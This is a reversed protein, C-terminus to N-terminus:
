WCKRWYTASKEYGLAHYFDESRRTALALLQCESQQAWLEVAQILARGIGQRRLSNVVAIEELWAVRGNAYFTLHHLALAYGVIDSQPTAAIVLMMSPTALIDRYSIEFASREVVFSTAMAKALPFIGDIDQQTAARIVIKQPAVISTTM